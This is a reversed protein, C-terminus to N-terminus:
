FLHRISAVFIQPRHKSEVYHPADRIGSAAKEVGNLCNGWYVLIVARKIRNYDSFRIDASLPRGLPPNGSSPLSVLSCLVAISPGM